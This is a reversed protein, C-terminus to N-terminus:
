GNAHLGTGLWVFEDQFRWFLSLTCFLTAGTHVTSPLIRVDAENGRMNLNGKFFISGSGANSIAGGKGETGFTLNDDFSADGEFSIIGKM